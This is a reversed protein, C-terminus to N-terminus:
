QRADREVQQRLSLRLYRCDYLDEVKVPDVKRPGNWRQVQKSSKNQRYLPPLFTPPRMETKTDRNDESGNGEDGSHIQGQRTFHSLRQEKKHRARREMHLPGSSRVQRRREHGKLLNDEQELKRVRVASIMSKDALQKKEMSIKSKVFRVEKRMLKERRKFSRHENMNDQKVKRSLRENLVPGGEMLGSLEEEKPEENNLYRSSM